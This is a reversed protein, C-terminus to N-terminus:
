SHTRVHFFMPLRRSSMRAFAARCLAPSGGHELHLLDPYPLLMEALERDDLHAFGQRRRVVRLRDPVRSASMTDNYRRRRAELSDGSVTGQPALDSPQDVPHHPPRRFAASRYCNAQRRKMRRRTPLVVHSTPEAVSTAAASRLGPTPTLWKTSM